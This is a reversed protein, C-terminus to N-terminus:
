EEILYVDKDKFFQIFEDIDNVYLYKQGGRKRETLIGKEFLEDKYRNVWKYLATKSIIFDNAFSSLSGERHEFKM